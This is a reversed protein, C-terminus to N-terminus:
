NDLKKDVKRNELTHTNDPMNEMASDLFFINLITSHTHAHGLIASPITNRIQNEFKRYTFNHRVFAENVPSHM